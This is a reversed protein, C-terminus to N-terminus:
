ALSNNILMKNIRSINVHSCFSIINLNFNLFFGIFSKILKFTLFLINFFKIFEYLIRILLFVVKLNLTDNLGLSSIYHTSEVLVIRKRHIALTDVIFLYKIVCWTHNFLFDINTKFQRLTNRSFLGNWCLIIILELCIVLQTHSKIIINSRENFLIM